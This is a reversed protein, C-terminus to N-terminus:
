AEPAQAVQQLIRRPKFERTLFSVPADMVRDFPSTGDMLAQSYVYVKFSSGM